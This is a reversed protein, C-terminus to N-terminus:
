QILGLSEGDGCLSQSVIPGLVVVGGSVGSVGDSFGRVMIIMGCQGYVKV